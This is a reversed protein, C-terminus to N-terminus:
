LFILSHFFYFYRGILRKEVDFPIKGLHSVKKLMTPFINWKEANVISQHKKLIFILKKEEFYVYLAM